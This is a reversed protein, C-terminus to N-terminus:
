AKTRREDRRRPTEAAFVTEEAGEAEEAGERGDGGLFSEGPGGEGM